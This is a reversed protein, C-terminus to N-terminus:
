RRERLMPRRADEALLAINATTTTPNTTSATELCRLRGQANLEKTTATIPVEMFLLAALPSLSLCALLHLHSQRQRGYANDPWEFADQELAEGRTARDMLSRLFSLQQEAIYPINHIVKCAFLSCPDTTM